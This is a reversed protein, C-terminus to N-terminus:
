KIYENLASIIFTKDDNNNPDDLWAVAAVDSNGILKGNYIYSTGEHLVRGFKVARRLLAKTELQKDNALERFQTPYKDVFKKLEMKKQLETLGYVNMGKFDPGGKLELIYDIIKKYSEVKESEQSLKHYAREALELAAFRSEDDIAQKAMDIIKFDYVAPNDDGEKAVKSHGIAVNYSIYGLVDIPEAQNDSGKKLKFGAEIEVGKSPVVVSFDFWFLKVKNEWDNSDAKVGILTPLYILEEERTLGRNVDRTGKKWGPSIKQVVEDRIQQAAKDKPLMNSKPYHIVKVKRSGIRVDQGLYKAKLIGNSVVASAEAEATMTTGNSM